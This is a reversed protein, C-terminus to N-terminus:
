KKDGDRRIRKKTKAKQNNNEYTDVCDKKPTFVYENEEKKDTTLTDTTFTLGEIGGINKEKLVDIVKIPADKDNEIDIDNDLVIKHIERGLYNVYKFRLDDLGKNRITVGEYLTSIIEEKSDIVSALARNAIINGGFMLIAMIASLIKYIGYSNFFLVTPVISILINMIFLKRRKSHLIDEDETLFKTIVTSNNIYDLQMKHVYAMKKNFDKGIEGDLEESLSIIATAVKYDLKNHKRIYRFIDYM